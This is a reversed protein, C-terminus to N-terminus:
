RRRRRLWLVVAAGALLLGGAIGALRLAASGDAGTDSLIGSWEGDSDSGSGAAGPTPTASGGSSGGPPTPDVPASVTLPASAEAGSEGGTAVVTHEGLETDAPVVFEGSVIGDGSAEVDLLEVPTSHLVLAVAEGAAFGDGTFAVTEGPSVSGAALVLSAESEVPPETSGEGDVTLIARAPVASEAGIALVEYEGDAADERVTIETSIRGDADAVLGTSGGDFRFEVDEGPAFGEGSVGVRAGPAVAGDVGLSLTPDFEAQPEAVVVDVTAAATRVGDDAVVTATYTGAEAFVHSARIARPAETDVAAEAVAAGDGWNVTATYGADAAPARDGIEALVTSFETGAVAEAQEAGDLRWPESVSVGGDSALAFVHIRGETTPSGDQVPLTLSVLTRDSPLEVPATSYIGAATGNLRDAGVRRHESTAVLINDAYLSTRNATWDGFAIPIEATSGDSFTLTGVEDQARETATGILSISTTGEAVTLPIVQGRGTANDPEGPEVRPLTFSLETGPVAIPTTGDQVFGDAALDPREYATNQGDCDGAVGEEAICVSDFADTLSDVVQREVRIPVTASETTSGDTATVVASYVGAREYSLPATVTFAGLAGRTLAAPVPESGDGADVTVTYDDASESEGTIAALQETVEVGPQVTIEEGATVTFASDVVDADALLELEALSVAEGTSSESVVLRYHSYAGFEAIQFPRNQGSWRFEEGSRSDLRTWSSGDASGELTWSSPAAASGSATLTYGSLQVAGQRSRVSVTPSATDFVTTTVASDDTLAAVDATDESRVTSLEGGAVDVRPQRVPEDSSSEGWATPSAGMRFALTGGEDIADQSLSPAELPEGNLSASQIYVNDVSNGEATITFDPRGERHITASDFLPSGITYSDTGMSLPYFGLASFVYWSSMEGNDEDGPYGQGIESGVFLRRTIERVVSQTTSPDGAAASIYPIHHSVQNSMGLQGMRVDRAEVMEHIVGGYGGPKDAREQEGYFEALKATLGESGGYLAALGDVDFPAHFAFNWGNTETYSGGWDGPDFDAAPTAFEGDANRAQFFGTEENFMHVYHQARDLFYESEEVLQDVRGAPTRDDAALGAAMQGIGFDNIFGELGWSVSEHTQAPTYGLYMSTDLGKRGVGKVTTPVTANKLAADYTDLAEAIPVNKMYADAFAVDSSTGTMLDAYGPSSWRAIWGGDRYQQVFGDILEPALDPYLASYAPWATRYTDWFGNNVYIKGDRIPANTTTDTATGSREAVPSAYQYRPEAATGTNEFQSNPYMNLRYLSSYLTTRQDDGAGEVSIVGLRENWAREADGRVDDFGRGTVELDRNAAAQEQSIFSTAIRLEVIRDGSLSVTAARASDRAADTTVGTVPADLQGSVFMRSRGVSLGSGADVWGSVVGDEGVSLKADGLTRDVVVTGSEAGEPFQFRMIASHDAPAVEAAVGNEFRVSYLDPRAIENDHRFALARKAPALETTGALAPMIALQNRDGMWPSPEHSIGIAQLETLNDANNASAYNYLWTDSTANTMPTYFNFGNPVAAAPINNGRSFAGSSNTGRRTDVYNVLSSGDIPETDPTVEIDDVWGQFETSSQGSPNDYSLLVKDITRGALPSLDVTVANWQNGYLIKSEGQQRAGIGGGHEDRLLDGASATTGDDLLLDVAAYTAPYQLDDSDLEPFIRYSLESDAAIRTDVDEILVNSASAAGDGRHSGAYRLSQVGTFGKRIAATPSSGPGSGIETTMPADPAPEDSGDLVDWSSLQTIGGGNNATIRLRLQDVDAPEDLEFSLEAGRQPFSLGTRTDLATWAGDGSRGEVVIDKPDREPADNGATLTYRAIHVTESFSYVIDATREFALWKTSPDTSTLNIAAENPSNEATATVEEVLGLASGPRYGSSGVVNVPDTWPTSVLTAADGSEFSTAFAEGATPAAAAPLNGGGVLVAGSVILATTARAGRRRRRAPPTTDTESTM